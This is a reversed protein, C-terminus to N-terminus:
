GVPGAQVFQAFGRLFDRLQARVAEDVIEGAENFVQHARSVQLRGGFWPRMGLTRLVPLWHAQAMVTGFGGPSAGIVAIPRNGFVKSIDSAPRSLWGIANKFVGPIGNNYEPTALLLGDCIMVRAKLDRVAEPLGEAAELDGDYLPIGHLLAIEMAYKGLVVIANTATEPDADDLFDLALKELEPSTHLEAVGSLTGTYCHTDERATMARRILEISASADVRLYYALLHNQEYCAMKGVREDLLSRVRAHIGASGYREILASHIETREGKEFNEVFSQELEPLTEDPLMMLAQLGVRPNPRKMVALIARRGEDPSLEYMRKLALAGLDASEYPNDPKGMVQKQYLQRLVPLLSDGAIQKWRYELLTRQEQSPLDNFVSAVDPLKTKDWKIDLLTNVGVAKARGTKFPVSQALRGAYKTM